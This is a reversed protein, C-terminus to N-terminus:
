RQNARENAMEEARSEILRRIKGRMEELNVEEHPAQIPNTPVVHGGLKVILEAYARREGFDAFAKHDTIKGEFAAVKVEVADLGENLRRVLREAPIASRIVEGFAREVVPLIETTAHDASSESYGAERAARRASKGEALGEVFRAQRVTPKRKVPNNPTEASM